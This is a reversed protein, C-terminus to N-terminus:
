PIVRRAVAVVPRVDRRAREADDAKYVETPIFDVDGYFSLERERRLWQSVAAIDNLAARVDPAFKDAQELMLAGVDHLKPPEVGIQRLMAKQALGVLEQAERVVDSWAQREYLMDLMDLRVMAKALYSQALSANTV